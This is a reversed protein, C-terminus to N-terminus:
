GRTALFTSSPSTSIRPEHQKWSFFGYNLRQLNGKNQVCEIKLLFFPVQESKLFLCVFTACVILLQVRISKKRGKEEKYLPRGWYVRTSM